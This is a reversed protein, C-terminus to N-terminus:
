RKEVLCRAEAPLEMLTRGWALVMGVPVALDRTEGTDWWGNRVVLVRMSRGGCRSRKQGAYIGEAVALSAREVGADSEVADSWALWIHTGIRPWTMV